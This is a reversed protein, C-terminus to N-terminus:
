CCNYRRDVTVSDAKSDTDVRVSDALRKASRISQSEIRCRRILKNNKIPRMPRSPTQRVSKHNAKVRSDGRQCIEHRHCLRPEHGHTDASVKTTFSQLYLFGGATDESVMIFLIYLIVRHWTAPRESKKKTINDTRKKLTWIPRKYLSKILPLFATRDRTRNHTHYLKPTLYRGQRHCHTQGDSATANPPKNLRRLM